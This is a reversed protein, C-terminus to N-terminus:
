AALLWDHDPNSYVDVAIMNLMNIAVTLIAMASTTNKLLSIVTLLQDPLQHALRLLQLFFLSSSLLRELYRSEQCCVITGFALLCCAVTTACLLTVLLSKHLSLWEKPLHQM